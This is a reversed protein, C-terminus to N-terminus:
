PLGTRPRDRIWRYVNGAQEFTWNHWKERRAERECKRAESLASQLLLIANDITGATPTLIVWTCALAAQPCVNIDQNLAGLMQVMAMHDQPLGRQTLRRLNLM